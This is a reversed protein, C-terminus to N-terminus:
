NHWNSDTVTHEQSSPITFSSSGSEMHVGRCWRSQGRPGVVLVLRTGWWTAGARGSVEQFRGDEPGSAGALSWDRWRGGGAACNLCCSRM